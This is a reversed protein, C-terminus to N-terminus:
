IWNWDETTPSDMQFSPRAIYSGAIVSEYSQEVYFKLAFPKGAIKDPRTANHCV